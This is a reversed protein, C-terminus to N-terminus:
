KRLRSRFSELRRISEHASAVIRAVKQATQEAQLGSAQQWLEHWKILRKWSEIAWDCCEERNSAVTSNEAVKSLYGAALLLHDATSYSVKGQATALAEISRLVTKAIREQSPGGFEHIRGWRAAELITAHFAERASASYGHRQYILGSVYLFRSACINNTRLIEAARGWIKEIEYVRPENLYASLYGAGLDIVIDTFDDAIDDRQQQDTEHALAAQCANTIAPLHKALVLEKVRQAELLASMVRLFDAAAKPASMAFVSDSFFTEISDRVYNLARKQWGPVGSLTEKSDLMRYAIDVDGRQLKELNGTQHAIEVMNGRLQGALDLVNQELDVASVQRKVGEVCLLFRRVHDPATIFGTSSLATLFQLQVVASTYKHLLNEVGAIFEEKVRPSPESHKLAPLCKLGQRARGMHGDKVAHLLELFEIRPLIAKIDREYGLSGKKYKSSGRKHRALSDKAEGRLRRIENKLWPVLTSLEEHPQVVGAEYQSIRQKIGSLILNFATLTQSEERTYQDAASRTLGSLTGRERTAQGELQTTPSGMPLTTAPDSAALYNPGFGVQLTKLITSAGPQITLAEGKELCAIAEEIRSLMKASKVLNRNGAGAVEASFAKRLSQLVFQQDEKDRSQNLLKVSAFCVDRLVSEAIHNWKKDISVFLRLAAMRLSYARTTDATLESASAASGLVDFIAGCAVRGVTSSITALREFQDLSAIDEVKAITDGMRLQARVLCLYVARAHGAYGVQELVEIAAEFSQIYQAKREPPLPVKVEPRALFDLKVIKDALDTRSPAAYGRIQSVVENIRNPLPMSGRFVKLVPERSSVPGLSAKTLDVGVPQGGPPDRPTSQEHQAQNDQLIPQMSPPIQKPRGQPAQDPPQFQM